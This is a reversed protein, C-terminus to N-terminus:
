RLRLQSTGNCRRLQSLARLTLNSHAHSNSQQIFLVLDMGVREPCQAYRKGRSTPGEGIESGHYFYREEFMSDSTGVQSHLLLKELCLM